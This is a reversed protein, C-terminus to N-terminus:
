QQQTELNMLLQITKSLPERYVSDPRMTKLLELLTYRYKKLNDRTMPLPSALKSMGAPDGESYCELIDSLSDIEFAEKLFGRSELSDAIKDLALSLNGNFNYM